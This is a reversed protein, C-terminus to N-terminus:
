QSGADKTWNKKGSQMCPGVHEYEIYTIPLRYRYPSPATLVTSSFQLMKERIWICKDKLAKCQQNPPLFPMRGTFFLPPNHLHASTLGSPTDGLRITSTDAETLREKCWLTWFNEETVPEGPHDRFFPRLVTTTTTDKRDRLQWLVSRLEFYHDYSPFNVQQGWVTKMWCDLLPNVRVRQMALDCTVLPM